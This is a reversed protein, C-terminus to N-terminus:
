QDPRTWVSCFSNLGSECKLQRAALLHHLAAIDVEHHMPDEPTPGSLDVLFVLLGNGAIASAIACTAERQLPPPLHEIVADTYVIDYTGPVHITDAKAEIANVPLGLRAFRWTAFDFVIGPLELYHVDKGMRAAIECFLGVGGGFELFRKGSHSRIANVIAPNFGNLKRVVADTSTNASLTDFVYNQSAEYFNAAREAFGRAPLSAWDAANITHYNAIRHCIEALPM